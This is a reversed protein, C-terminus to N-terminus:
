EAKMKRRRSCNSTTNESEAVFYFHAERPTNRNNPKKDGRQTIHMKFQIDVKTDAAHAVALALLDRLM